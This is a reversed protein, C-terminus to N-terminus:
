GLKLPDASQEAQILATLKSSAGPPLHVSNDAVNSTEVCIMEKWDDPAMDSMSRTKEIWPNWLVTSHSGSKEIVIRRSWVPDEVVCTAKTNLHVQDTEKAIRIPENDVNKRRFGDTKDIYTTGELGSVSVQKIDGVALYTHLAEEYTFSGTGENRTELEMELASGVTVRFRLHFGDYGFARTTDSPALVLTAEVNGNERLATSEISWEMWRAFGHAPVPKGDGRPGFWPFIIPVGGRIAKGHTFLSKSNVFLVPRQGRPTWHSVHAGQLYIGAEAAPTSIVARVLGGPTDEFRLANPLDFRDLTRAGRIEGTM